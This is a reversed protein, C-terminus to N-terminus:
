KKKKKVVELLSELRSMVEEESLNQTSSTPPAKTPPPPSAAQQRGTETNIKGLINQLMGLLEVLDTATQKEAELKKEVQLKMEDQEKPLFFKCNWEGDEMEQRLDQVPGRVASCDLMPSNMDFVNTPVEKIDTNRCIVHALSNKKITKIQRDTFVKDNEFYFYDGDRLAQFTYAVICGMTPGIVGGPLPAEALAGVFLDINYLGGYVKYLM